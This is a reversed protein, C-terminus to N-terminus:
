KVHETRWDEIANKLAIGNESANKDIEAYVDPVKSLFAVSEEATMYHIDVGYGELAEISTDYFEGSIKECEVMWNAVAEEVCAKQADDLKDWTNQNMVLAGMGDTETFITAYDSVEGLMQSYVQEIGTICSDITGRQLGTALESLGLDATALDMKVALKGMWTGSVRVIKGKLGENNTIADGTGVMAMKAPYRLGLYHIGYNAYIDTLPGRVAEEFSKFADADDTYAFCGPMGLYAVDTVTTSTASSGLYVIDVINNTLEDLAQAEKYSNDNYTVFTFAGGSAKDLEVQLQEMVAVMSSSPTGGYSIYFQYPEVTAAAGSDEAEASTGGNNPAPAPENGCAVLGLAMVGVLGVSLLKKLVNKKM